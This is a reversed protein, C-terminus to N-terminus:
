TCGKSEISRMSIRITEQVTAISEPADGEENGPSTDQEGGSPDKATYRAVVGVM